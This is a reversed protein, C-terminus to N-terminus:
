SSTAFYHALFEDFTVTDAAEIAERDVLSQRGKDVMFQRTFTEAPTKLIADKYYAALEMGVKGNDIGRGLLETMLKGSLTLDSNSVTESVNSVAQSYDVGGYSQDLWQAIAAFDVFLSGLWKERSIAQGNQSLMLDKSRGEIVVKDQNDEAELQQKDTLSEQPNLLCYLLFVDLVRMQEMTIGYPSFPNVDLARLEVYMVGRNELADTPKEGSKAVQKPRVPAYLENEIQLINHNLQKYKGDVKVGINKYQESETHIAKRLKEIYQTLSGYEINLASQASNTYGLDSMRLSTANPLYISGKGFTEFEFQSERGGLFSKCMAPSAGFLYTVVWVFRKINRVMHMYQASQFDKSDSKDGLLDQYKQWFEEPLSFNYHIGSIAQMMSGYRNKLGQRYTSKMQAVNSTGYHAIRIDSEDGIFCPMSMPWLMESGINELVFKHVDQLQNYTQQISNSPPTILEMLSESYDTTIYPHTLSAGLAQPHDLQSLKGEPTIRLGEREIGRKINKIATSFEATNLQKLKDHVTTM